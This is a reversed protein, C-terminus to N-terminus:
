RRMQAWRRRAKTSPLGMTRKKYSKKPRWRLLLPVPPGGPPVLPMTGGLPAFPMTGGLPAFPMTGGLPAFPMTGGLPAFPMTGGLPAFPMTGGLPAFPMTGGLPAFPMTGGVPVTETACFTNSQRLARLVNLVAGGSTGSEDVADSSYATPAGLGSLLMSSREEFDPFPLSLSSATVDALGQCLHPFNDLGKDSAYLPRDLHSTASGWTRHSPITSVPLHHPYFLPIAYRTSPYQELSTSWGGKSPAASDRFVLKLSRDNSTSSATCSVAHSAFCRARSPPVARSSVIGWSLHSFPDCTNLLGSASMAPTNAALTSVRAAGCCRRHAGPLLLRRATRGFGERSPHLTLCDGEPGTM